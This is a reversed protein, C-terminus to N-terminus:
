RLNLTMESYKSEDFNCQVFLPGQYVKWESLIMEMQTISTCNISRIGFGSFISIWRSNNIKLPKVTKQKKLAPGIISAYGGNSFLLFLIPLNHEVVINLESLYMGIGGDGAILIIPEHRNYFAAGIAMPLSCGMYRSNSTFLCKNIEGSVLFHEAITCFNGTDVIVRGTDKFYQNIIVFITAPMFGRCYKQFLLKNYKTKAGFDWDQIGIEDVAAKLNGISVAYETAVNKPSDELIFNIVNQPLNNTGLLEDYCLGIGIVLDSEDIISKEFADQLGVGTFIGYSNQQDENVFGKASLTTFVPIPLKGIVQNLNLRVGLSGVICVIKKSRKILELYGFAEDLELQKQPYILNEGEFNEVLQFLVPGPSESKALDVIQCFDVNGDSLSCTGKTIESVFNAQNIRKHQFALPKSLDFSEAVHVLPIKEFHAYGVGPTSNLLGPGKISISFGVDGNLKGYTAAMISSTGEFSTTIFEVDESELNDILDLSLGSGPIGFVAKCKTKAISQALRKIRDEL